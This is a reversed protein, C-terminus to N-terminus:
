VGRWTQWRSLRGPTLPDICFQFRDTHCHILLTSGSRKAFRKSPLDLSASNEWVSEWTTTTLPPAAFMILQQYTAVSAAYEAVGHQKSALVELAQTREHHGISPQALARVQTTEPGCCTNNRRRNQRHGSPKFDRWGPLCRCCRQAAAPNSSRPKSKPPPCSRTKEPDGNQELLWYAEAMLDATGTPQAWTPQGWAATGSVPQTSGDHAPSQLRRLM